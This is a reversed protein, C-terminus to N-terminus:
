RREEYQIQEVRNSVYRCNISRMTGCRRANDANWRMYDCFEDASLVTYCALHDRMYDETERDKFPMAEIETYIWEDDIKEAFAIALGGPELEESPRITLYKAINM